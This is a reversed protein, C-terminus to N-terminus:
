QNIIWTNILTGGGLIGFDYVNKNILMLSKEILSNSEYSLIDFHSFLKLHAQHLIEDGLNNHGVWGIYAGKQKTSWASKLINIENEKKNKLFIKLNSFLSFIRKKNM